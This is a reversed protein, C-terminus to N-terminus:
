LQCKHSVGAAHVAPDEGGVQHGEQLRNGAEQGEEGAPSCGLIIHMYATFLRRTNLVHHRAPNPPCGGTGRSRSTLMRLKHGPSCRLSRHSHLTILQMTESDSSLTYHGQLQRGFQRQHEQQDRQVLISDM